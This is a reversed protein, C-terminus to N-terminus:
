HGVGVRNANHKGAYYEPKREDKTVKGMADFADHIAACGTGTFGETETSITENEPDIIITLIEEKPM